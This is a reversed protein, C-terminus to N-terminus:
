EVQQQPANSSDFFRSRSPGCTSSDHFYHSHGALKGSHTGNCITRLTQLKRHYSRGHHGRGGSWNGLNQFSRFIASRSQDWHIRHRHDIREFHVSRHRQFRGLIKRITRFHAARTWGWHSCGTQAGDRSKFFLVPVLLLLTWLLTTGYNQGAQTYTGFAGADNDGVMVILGPGLIALMTKVKAWVTTRPAIDNAGISGFAGHIDGIHADDLVAGKDVLTRECNANKSM